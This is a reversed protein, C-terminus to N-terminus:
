PPRRPTPAPPAPRGSSFAELRAAVRALGNKLFQTVTFGTLKDLWGDAEGLLAPTTSASRDCHRNFCGSRFAGNRPQSTSGALKAATARM